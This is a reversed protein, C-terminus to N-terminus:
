AEAGDSKREASLRQYFFGALLFMAGVALFSLARTVSSLNALDYVFLKALSLAFLALGAVRISRTRRVLGAYLVVLGVVGWLASVATHGRQFSAHVGVDPAWEFLQLIVLSAAYLGVV